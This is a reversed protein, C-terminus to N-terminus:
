SRWLLLVEAVEQTSTETIYSSELQKELQAELLMLQERLQCASLLLSLCVQTTVSLCVSM